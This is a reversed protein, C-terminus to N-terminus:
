RAIQKAHAELEEVLHHFAVSYPGYANQILTLKEQSPVGDKLREMAAAYMASEYGDAALDLTTVEGKFHPFYLSAIARIKAVPSIADPKEAGFVRHGSMQSLWRKHEFLAILLEEFKEAARNAKETRTKLWHSLFGGGFVGLLALVGGAAVPILAVLISSIEPVTTATTPM